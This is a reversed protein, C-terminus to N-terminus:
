NSIRELQKYVAYSLILSVMMGAFVDSPYHVGLYMRSFGILCAFTFSVFFWPKKKMWLFMWCIAFSFVTHSSPFSSGAPIPGIRQLQELAVFPRPRMCITKLVFSNIVGCVILSAFLYMGTKRTKKFFCLLLCLLGAMWILNTTKLFFSNWFPTRINQLWLLINADM